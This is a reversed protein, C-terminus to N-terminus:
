QLWMRMWSESSCVEDHSAHVTEEELAAAGFDKVAKNTILSLGLIKMGCHKAAIIEPITSM